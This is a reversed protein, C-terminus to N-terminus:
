ATGGNKDPGAVLPTSTDSRFVPGTVRDYLAGETGVRVPQFDRVLVGNDYIQCCVLRIKARQTAANQFLRLSVTNQRFDVASDFTRSFRVGSEGDEITTWTATASWDIDLVTGSAFTFGSNKNNWDGVLPFVKSPDTSQGYLVFVWRASVSLLEAGSVATGAPAGRSEARIRMRISNSSPHWGTDVYQAGTSEVYEVEADYPLPNPKQWVTVGGIAISKVDGEPITISQVGAFNM